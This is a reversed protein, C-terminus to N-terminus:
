AMDEITKAGARNLRKAAATACRDAARRTRHGHPCREIVLRRGEKTNDMRGVVARYALVNYIVTRGHSWQSRRDRFQESMKPAWDTPPISM